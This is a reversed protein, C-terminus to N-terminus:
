WGVGEGLFLFFFSYFVSLLLLPNPPVASHKLLYQQFQLMDLNMSVSLIIIVILPSCYYCHNEKGEEVKPIIQKAALTAVFRMPM